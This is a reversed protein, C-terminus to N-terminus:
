FHECTNASLLALIYITVDGKEEFVTRVEVVVNGLM